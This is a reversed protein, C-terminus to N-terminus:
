AERLTGYHMHLLRDAVAYYREDHTVAIITKGQSRFAPLLEEYFYQRFYPDQDAAWEDFVYIPKDELLAIVLALRKKQGGSLDLPHFRHHRYTTKGSLHMEDLLAQVQDEDVNEIGYLGDFLHFDSFIVSYLYRHNRMDVREGDIRFLGTSPPYLGTLVKVLTTKGSGNGGAVFLIEGAHISLNIPGVSFGSGEPPPPYAFGIHELSLTQFRSITERSPQYLYDRTKRQTREHQTFHHLQELAVKGHEIDPLEALLVLILKALYTIVVFIILTNGAVIAPSLLFVISGMALYGCLDTFIHYDSFYFASKTRIDRNTLVLPRLFNVFLDDNKLQDLKIEKFGDLLHYFTNFMALENDREQRITRNILSRFITNRAVIAIAFALLLIFGAKASLWSIYLWGGTLTILIQFAEVSKAAANTVTQANVMMLSIEARNRHEMEQVEAQRLANASTLILTELSQETLRAIKQQSLRKTFLLLVFITSLLLADAIYHQDSVVDTVVNVIFPILMAGAIGSIVSLVMISQVEQRAQQHLIKFLEM